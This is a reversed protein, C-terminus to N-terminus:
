DEDDPDGYREMINTNLEMLTDNFTKMWMMIDDDSPPPDMYMLNNKKSLDDWEKLVDNWIEENILGM